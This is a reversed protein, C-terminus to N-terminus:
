WWSLYLNSLQNCSKFSYQSKIIRNNLNYLLYKLVNSWPKKNKVIQYINDLINFFHTVQSNKIIESKVNKYKDESLNIVDVLNLNYRTLFIMLEKIENNRTSIKKNEGLIKVFNDFECPRISISWSEIIIIPLKKWLLDIEDKRIKFKVAYNSLIDLKSFAIIRDFKSIKDDARSFTIEYYIKWWIFFPKIKQIYYRENDNIVSWLMNVREVIKKYYEKNSSNIDTPFKDINDLVILSYNNKLFHKIKYLYVLYKLILRESNEKDFTYHSTSIQLLKHFKKFVRFKWELFVYRIGEQLNGYNIEIVENRSYIYLKLFIHEIFNRLQSLINQSLLWRDSTNLTEINDCIAKDINMIAIDIEKMITVDIEKM